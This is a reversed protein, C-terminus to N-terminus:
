IKIHITVSDTTLEPKHRTRNKTKEKTFEVFGFRELLSIDKKVSKFDRGLIKALEYISGPKQTKIANLMRAKENSLLRRLASIGSFDYSDKSVNTKKFISFTGKSEKIIIERIKQAM